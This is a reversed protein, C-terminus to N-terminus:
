QRVDEDVPGKERLLDRWLNPSGFAGSKSVLLVGDWLGGRLISCPLGPVIRGTVTLSCAGTALCLAKLTEGGAVLLSGPRGLQSVLDEINGAILRAAEARAIGPPLDFSALAIGNGALREAVRQANCPSRNPLALWYPDCVELQARTAAQDSGFLGLVPAKLREITPVQRGHALAQALGGSGCWLVPEGTSLGAEAVARLDEETATDYVTVTGGLGDGPRALAVRLGEAELSEVIHDGVAAWSGDTGRAFQRGGETRRGQYAFAPAVVCRSWGGARICTALEASWHGRLLSDVKKYPISAERLEKGLRCAIEVAEARNRERTGSDRAVNADEDTAGEVWRADVSGCLGVFEAATDLAGTLDDALLRLGRTM